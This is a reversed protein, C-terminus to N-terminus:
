PFSQSSCGEVRLSGRGAVHLGLERGPTCVDASDSGSGGRGACPRPATGSTSEGGPARAHSDGVDTAQGPLSQLGPHRSRATQAHQYDGVQTGFDHCQEKPSLLM